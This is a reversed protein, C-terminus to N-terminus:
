LHHLKGYCNLAKFIVVSKLLSNCYLTAGRGLWSLFALSDLRHTNRMITKEGRGEIVFTHSHSERWSGPGKWEVEIDCPADM